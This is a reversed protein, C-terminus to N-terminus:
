NGFLGSLFADGTVAAKSGRVSGVAKQKNSENRKLQEIEARTANGEDRLRKNEHMTFATTIDEGGAVADWVEPPIDDVKVDPYKEFFKRYMAKKAEEDGREKDKAKYSALEEETDIMRQAASLSIGETDALEQARRTRRNAFVEDIYQDLPMGAEEALQALQRQTKSNKIGDLQGKIHDYNLGKQANTIVESRPLSVKQGNYTLEFMEEADDPNTDETQAESVGKESEAAAESETEEGDPSDEKTAGADGTNAEADDTGLTYADEDELLGSLFADDEVDPVELMENEELVVENQPM